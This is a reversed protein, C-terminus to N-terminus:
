PTNMLKWWLDIITPLRELLTKQAFSGEDSTKIYPALSLVPMNNILIRASTKSKEMFRRVRDVDVQNEFKGDYKFTTGVIGGDAIRLQDEVNEVRLGTNAFVITDPVAKKVQQIALADTQDGAILGSICLADPRNNFV